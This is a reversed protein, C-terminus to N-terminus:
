ETPLDAPECGSLVRNLASRESETVSLGWYYKVAVQRLAFDCRNRAPLWDDAASAGKAGNTPGDVALLNLPDNAFEERQAPTWEWAGSKWADALAVVHDIQVESSTDEGRIFQITQGTYPDLLVGSEVICNHTGPRYKVDDLDRGLVDNRTDCGNRDVDSWRPGFDDRSYEPGAVVTTPLEALAETAPTPEAPVSTIAVFIAYLIAVIVGVLLTKTSRKM